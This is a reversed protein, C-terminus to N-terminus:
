ISQTQTKYAHLLFGYVVAFQERNLALLKYVADQQQKSYNSIQITGTTQNGLLYDVGVNYFKSFIILERIGPKTKGNEYNSITNFRIGTSTSIEQQTKNGRLEKLIKAINNLEYNSLMTLQKENIKSKM